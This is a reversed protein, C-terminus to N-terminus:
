GILNRTIVILGVIWLLLTTSRFIRAVDDYESLDIDVEGLKGWSGFEADWHIYPARAEPAWLNDILAKIDWPICFPFKNTIESSLGGEQVVSEVFEPAQTPRPSVFPQAPQEEPNQAPVTSPRATPINNQIYQNNYNNIVTSNQSYNGNDTNNEIQNLNEIYAIRDFINIYENTGINPSLNIYNDSAINGVSNNIYNTVGNGSDGEDNWPNHERAWEKLEDDDIYPGDYIIAYGGSKLPREDTTFLAYLNYRRDNRLESVQFSNPSNLINNGSYVVSNYEFNSTGGSFNYIHSMFKNPDNRDIVAVGFVNRNVRFAVGYTSGAFGGIGDYGESTFNLTLDGSPPGPQGGVGSQLLDQFYTSDTFKQYAQKLTSFPSHNILLPDSPDTVWDRIKEYYGYGIKGIEAVMGVLGAIGHYVVNNFTTGIDSDFMARLADTAVSNTPLEGLLAQLRSQSVKMIPATLNGYGLMDKVKSPTDIAPNDSYIIGADALQGLTVNGYLQYIANFLETDGIAVGSANYFTVIIDALSISLYDENANVPITFSNFLLIFCVLNVLIKRKM